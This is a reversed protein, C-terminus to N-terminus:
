ISVRMSTTVIVLLLESVRCHLTLYSCLHFLRTNADELNVLFFFATTKSTAKLQLNFHLNCLAITTQRFGKEIALAGEVWRADRCGESGRERGATCGWGGRHSSRRTFATKGAGSASLVSSYCLWNAGVLLLFLRCLVRVRLLFERQEVWHNQYTDNATLYSAWPHRLTDVQKKNQHKKEESM